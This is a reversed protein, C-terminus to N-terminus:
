QKLSWLFFCVLYSRLMLDQHWKTRSASENQVTLMQAHQLDAAGSNVKFVPKFQTLPRRPNSSPLETKSCHDIFTSNLNFFFFVSSIGSDCPTVFRSFLILHAFSMFQGYLLFMVYCFLVLSQHALVADNLFKLRNNNSNSSYKMVGQLDFAVKFAWHTVNVLIRICLMPFLICM